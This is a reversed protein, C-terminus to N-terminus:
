YKVIDFLRSNRANIKIHGSKIGSHMAKEAGEISCYGFRRVVPITIKKRVPSNKLFTKLQNNM